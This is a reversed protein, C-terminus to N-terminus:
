AVVLYNNTTRMEYFLFFERTLSAIHPYTHDM